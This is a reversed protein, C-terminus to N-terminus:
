VRSDGPGGDSPGPASFTTPDSGRFLRLTQAVADFMSSCQGGLDVRPTALHLTCLREGADFPVVYTQAFTESPPGAPQSERLLRVTRVARGAPLTVIQAPELDVREDPDPAERGLARVLLEPTLPKPADFDQRHRSTLVAAAAFLELDGPDASEDRPALVSVWRAMVAGQAILLGRVQRALLELMRRDPASLGRDRLGDVTEEIFQDFPEQELPLDNWGRPLALGFSDVLDDETM